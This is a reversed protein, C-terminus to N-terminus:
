SRTTKRQTLESCFIDLPSCHPGRRVSSQKIVEVYRSSASQRRPLSQSLTQLNCRLPSRSASYVKSLRQKSSIALASEILRTTAENPDGNCEELTHVIVEDTAGTAEKIREILQKPVKQKADKSSSQQAATRANDGSRTTKTSMITCKRGGHESTDCKM